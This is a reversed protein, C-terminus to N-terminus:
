QLDELLQKSLNVMRHPYMASSASIAHRLGCGICEDPMGLAIGLAIFKNDADRAM